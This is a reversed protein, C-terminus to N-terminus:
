EDSKEKGNSANKFNQPPTPIPKVCEDGDAIPPEGGDDDRAHTSAIEGDLEHQWSMFLDGMSRLKVVDAAKDIWGQMKALFSAMATIYQPPFAPDRLKSSMMSILADRSLDAGDKAYREATDVSVGAQRACEAM